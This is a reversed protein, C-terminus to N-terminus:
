RPPTRQDCPPGRTRRLCRAHFLLFRFLQVAHQPQCLLKLERLVSLLLLLLQRRRRLRVPVRVTRRTQGPFFREDRKWGWYERFKRWKLLKKKDLACFLNNFPKKGTTVM